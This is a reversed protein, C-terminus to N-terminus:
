RAPAPAPNLRSESAVLDLQDCDIWLHRGDLATWVLISRGGRCKHITDVLSQMFAREDPVAVVVSTKNRFYLSVSTPNM